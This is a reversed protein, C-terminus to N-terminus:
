FTFSVTFGSNGGDASIKKAFQILAFIVLGRLISLVIKSRAIRRLDNQVDIVEYYDLAPKNSEISKTKSKSRRTLMQDNNNITKKKKKPLKPAGKWDENLLDGHHIGCIPCHWSRSNKALLLRHEIPTSIGAIEIPKSLMHGRLAMVLTRLNWSTDWTEPHHATASLCILKNTEWRGNPTMVCISPAKRPYDLPLLIRGHYIGLEYISDPTGTFSFHWEFLSKTPHLRIGIEDSSSNFPHDFLSYGLQKSDRYEGLLRRKSLKSVETSKSWCLDLIICLIILWIM